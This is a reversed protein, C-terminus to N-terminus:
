MQCLEICIFHLTLKKSSGNEYCADIGTYNLTEKGPYTAYCVFSMCHGYSLNLETFSAIRCEYIATVLDESQSM